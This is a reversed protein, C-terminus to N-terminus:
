PSGQLVWRYRCEHQRARDRGSGYHVARFLINRCDGRRELFWRQTRRLVYRDRRAAHVNGRVAEEVLYLSFAPVFRTGGPPMACISAAPLALAPPRPVANSELVSSAIAQFAEDAARYVNGTRRSPKPRLLSALVVVIGLSALLSTARHM